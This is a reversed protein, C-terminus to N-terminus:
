HRSKDLPKERSSGAVLTETQMQGIHTPVGSNATIAAKLAGHDIHLGPYQLQWGKLLRGAQKELASVTPAQKGDEGDNTRHVEVYLQTGQMGLKIPQNVIRVPTGPRVEKFLRTIDPNYMRFCGHSVRTGIGFQKNTGHIFYGSVGLKLAYPGLPNDPGPPIVGPLYEGEAAHQKRISPPPYWAPSKIRTIVRTAAVPSPNSDTGIGIPFIQVQHDHFYYLRFEALNIVIGRRPGAPLIYRTPLEIKTGKGPLWPDVRPNAKVLALYGLSHAQGIDAFTDEYRTHVTQTKGVLDGLQPMPLTRARVGASLLTLIVIGPWLALRTASFPRRNSRM